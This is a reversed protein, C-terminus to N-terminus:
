LYKKKELGKRLFEVIGPDKSSNNQIMKFHKQYKFIENLRM